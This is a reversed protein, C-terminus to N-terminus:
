DDDVVVFIFSGIKKSKLKKTEIHNYITSQPISTKTSYDKVTMLNDFAGKKKKKAM